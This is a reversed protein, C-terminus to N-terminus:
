KGRKAPKKKKPVVLMEEPFEWFEVKGGAFWQCCYRKRGEEDESISNITMEPGGSKLQVVGGEKFKGMAM